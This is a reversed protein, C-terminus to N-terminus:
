THKKKASNERFSKAWGEKVTQRGRGIALADPPVDDTVVSGSGVFAGAGITVPAVLASNSGIFANEGIVTRFKSFGDYNCTITGAGLNAEAGVTADGVYTLHSIKAGTGVDANKIEVFNGVKAKAGLKAGPRLRAFPGVSAGAGVHAGELHSFAHIVAPGEVTVGPGFVVNPEIVVDQGLVTDYSLFVTEPAVMTVGARMAATRAKEQFLREALALQVRDNVGMLESEPALDAACVLGMRTAIEVADTLYYEKAANECGIADLIALTDRGRLAMIGGNCLRIAREEDTADKHERIALLRDDRMIFRGYGTPDAAQFGLAVVAAQSLGARMRGYTEGTVLPTDGFAVIVEDYGREIAARAALVAHATGLQEAQVFIDAEPLMRRAEAAIAERGPSVVVAIADAGAATVSAIAHALLSRGAVPHLVKPVSSRMRTGNGAALVVALCRGKRPGTDASATTM